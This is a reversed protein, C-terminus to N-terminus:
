WIWRKDNTYNNRSFILLYDMNAVSLAFLWYLFTSNLKVPKSFNWPTGSFGVSSMMFSNMLRFDSLVTSGGVLLIYNIGDSNRNSPQCNRHFWPQLHRQQVKSSLRLLIIDWQRQFVFSKGQFWALSWGNQYIKITKKGQLKVTVENWADITWCFCIVELKVAVITFEFM